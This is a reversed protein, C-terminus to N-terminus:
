ATSAQTVQHWVQSRQTFQKLSNVIKAALASTGSVRDLVQESAAKATNLADPPFAIFKTGTGALTEIATLNAAHAEAVATAHELQCCLEVVAKLDPSLESWIALGILVESAGNPKNFGPFMYFPALRNFGLPLDNVPALLEVADVVGREFAAFTDAPPLAIATAGLAQYIEGGLGTARIRLGKLDEASKIERKFWGAASPGTNGGVFPKLKFPAYLEDWHAQGGSQLWAMHATPGPGFPMTTFLPAVAIKGGWFLSATHAMEVSGSAVADFTQLAPVIEGAGFLEIEIAGQSFLKIRDALRRASVGPGPANKTWATACRWRIVKSQARAVHPATVVAASTVLLSGVLGRRTARDSM